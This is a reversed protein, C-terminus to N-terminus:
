ALSAAVWASFSGGAGVARMVLGRKVALAVMDNSVIDACGGDIVDTDDVVVVVM